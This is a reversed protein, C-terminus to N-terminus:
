QEGGVGPREVDFCTRFGNSVDFTHKVRTVYYRGNFLEGLGKLRVKAGVRLRGDGEAVASGQVFRRAMRQFHTDALTRAEASSLPALHVIREAREGIASALLGGGSEGGELETQISQENAGEDVAEKSDIEWGSVSLRSRQAALDATVQFEQLGKGYTLDLEGGSRRSRAQVHLRNEEIWLEADIARTRERLFALDSQNVQTLVSYRPGNVDVETALGYGAAIQEIVEQDSVEEFSRSRRTMRLDQLRDEALVVLEPPRQAPYRGELATIRGAFITSTTQGTGMKVSFERGFDFVQRDFYLFDVQGDHTGWNNFTAECCYLGATSEEVALSQVAEGLEPLERGDLSLTPRAPYFLPTIGLDPM